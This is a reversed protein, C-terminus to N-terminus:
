RGGGSTGNAPASFARGFNVDWPLSPDWGAGAQQALGGDSRGGQVPTRVSHVAKAELGKVTGELQSIQEQLPAVEAARIRAEVAAATVKLLAGLDRNEPKGLEARPLGIEDAVALAQEGWVRRQGSIQEDVWAAADQQAALDLPESVERAYTWRALEAAEENTLTPGTYSADFMRNAIRTRRQYEAEPGILEARRARATASAQEAADAKAKATAAEAEAKRQAAVAEDVLARLRAQEAEAEERKSARRSPTDDPKPADDPTPAPEGEPKSPREAPDGETPADKPDDGEPKSPPAEVAAGSGGPPADAAPVAAAPASAKSGFSADWPFPDFAESSARAGADPTEAADAPAASQQDAEV